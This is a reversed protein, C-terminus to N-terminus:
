KIKRIYKYLMFEDTIKELAQLKYQDRSIESLIAIKEDSTQANKFREVNQIDQEEPAFRKEKKRDHKKM